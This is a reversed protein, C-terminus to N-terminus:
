CPNEARNVAAPTLQKCSLLWVLVVPAASVLGVIARMPFELESGRCVLRLYWNIGYSVASLAVCLAVVRWRVLCLFQKAVLTTTIGLVFSAALFAPIIASSATNSSSGHASLGYFVAMGAANALILNLLNFPKKWYVEIVGKLGNYLCLPLVSLLLWTYSNIGILLEPELITFKYLLDALPFGLAIALLSIVLLAEFLVSVGRCLSSNESLDRDKSPVSDKSPDSGAFKASIVMALQNVPLVIMSTAQVFLLVCLFRAVDLPEHRIMWAPLLYLLNDLFSIASRPVGYTLLESWVEPLRHWPLRPGRFLPLIVYWLNGALLLASCLIAYYSFVSQADIEGFLLFILIYFGSSVLLNFINYLLMRREILLWNMPVFLLLQQVLLVLTYLTVWRANEPDSGLLASLPEFLAYTLLCLVVSVVGFLMLITTGFFRIMLPQDHYIGAYRLFATTGGLQALSSGTASYRRVLIFLGLAVPVLLATSLRTLYLMAALSVFAFAINIAIDNRLKQFPMRDRVRM